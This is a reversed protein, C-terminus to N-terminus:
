KNNLKQNMGDIVDATINYASDKYVLYDLGTGTTLIYSYGKEKNYDTLFEKLNKQIEDM